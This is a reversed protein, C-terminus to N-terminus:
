ILVRGVIRLVLHVGALHLVMKVGEVFIEPALHALVALYFLHDYAIIVIVTLSQMRML